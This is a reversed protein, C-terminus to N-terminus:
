IFSAVLERLRNLIHLSSDLPMGDVSLECKATIGDRAGADIMCQCIEIQEDMSTVILDVIKRNNYETRTSDDIIHAAIAASLAYGGWNSVSAVILYDTATVCAIESAHPIISTMMKDYVKGIGVENGGDGIGISIKDFTIIQDLPSVIASMDRKRMTLYKGSQSPGPREIAIITDYNEIFEDLIRKDSPTFRPGPPYSRFIITGDETSSEGMYSEKSRLLHMNYANVAAAVVKENCEDTLIAVQKGLALCSKAISLAGLPGDTETPVDYDLLCPFGTIIAVASSEIVKKAALTLQGPLIIDKIGRGGEDMQVIEELKLVIDDVTFSSMTDPIDMAHARASRYHIITGDSNSSGDFGM